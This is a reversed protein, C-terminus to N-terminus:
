PLAPLFEEPHQADVAHVVSKLRDLTALLFPQGQTHLWAVGYAHRTPCQRNEHATAALSTFRKRLKRWSLLAALQELRTPAKPLHHSGHRELVLSQVHHLLQNYSTSVQMPRRSPPVSRPRPITSCTGYQTCVAGKENPSSVVSVHLTTRYMLKNRITAVQNSQTEAHQREDLLRASSQVDLRPHKAKSLLM